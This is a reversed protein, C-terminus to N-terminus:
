NQLLVEPTSTANKEVGVLCIEQWPRYHSKFREEKKTGDPYTVTYDFYADAGNHAHETCKKEGPALTDTEVLKTPPPPTINYIAPKTQEVGRGDRTGWFDFYLDDGAVRSQILIYNDTDNMFKFDPAPDYITADTGAPEYYSVRYSHNQRATVPLGSNLVGRFVTTGIQCLGGGYEPTTRNDKIVLEPLYGAAADVAGLTKLLSFEEGPKVLTGNVAAAGVAINHRRNAPSGSFNSHGTGIIEAIGLTNVSDTTIESQLTDIVITVATTTAATETIDQLLMEFNQISATANLKQGPQSSVFEGVKGNRVVFKADMPAVDTFPAVTGGLYSAAEDDKLAIRLAGDKTMTSKATLLSAIQTKDLLFKKDPNLRSQPPIVLQFPAQALIADAQTLLPEIDAAFATPYDTKLSIAIPREDLSAIQSLIENIIAVYDFKKGYSEPQVRLTEGDVIITANQAPNEFVSFNEQLLNTLKGNDLAIRLPVDPSFLISRTQQALANWLHADHQQQFLARLSADTDFSFIDFSADPTDAIATATIVATTDGYTVAIGHHSFADTRGALISQAAAYTTGGLASGALRTGPFFSNAYFREYGALAAAFLAAGLCIFTCLWLLYHTRNLIKNDFFRFLKRPESLARKTENFKKHFDTLQQSVKKGV